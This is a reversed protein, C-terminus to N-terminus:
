TLLNTEKTERDVHENETNRQKEMKRKREEGNMKRWIRNEKNRQKELKWKRENENMKM